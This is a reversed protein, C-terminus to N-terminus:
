GHTIFVPHPVANVVANAHSPAFLNSLIGRGYAGMVVFVRQKGLLYHLLRQRTNRSELLIFVPDTYHTRLWEKLKYKDGITKGPPTIGLIVAKRNRLQPFLQTFQKIAFAASRSNNYTFVIEDIEEFHAPAIVVPCESLRLVERVFGTPTRQEGETFSTGSDIIILDAYRSEEIVEIIPIGRDHHVAYNVGRATCAEKFHRINDESYIEKIEKVSKGPLDAGIATELLREKSRVENELNELFAGTLKSHTLNCLFCAFDLCQMNMQVADTVYLIKEM